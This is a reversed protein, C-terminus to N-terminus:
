ALARTEQAVQAATGPVDTLDHWGPGNRAARRLLRAARDSARGAVNFQLYPRANAPMSWSSGTNNIPDPSVATSTASVRAPRPCRPGISAM